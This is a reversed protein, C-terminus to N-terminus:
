NKKTKEESEPAPALIDKIIGYLSIVIWAIEMLVAPLNWNHMLSVLILLAGLFNFFSYTLSTPSLKRAQLLYYTILIIVTGICGILDFILDTSVQDTIRQIFSM